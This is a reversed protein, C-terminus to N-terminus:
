STKLVYKNLPYEEYNMNFNCKYDKSTCIYDLLVILDIEDHENNM